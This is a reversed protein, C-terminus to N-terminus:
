DSIQNTNRWLKTSIHSYLAAKPDIQRKGFLKHWGVVLCLNGVVVRAMLRSQENWTSLTQIAYRYPDKMQTNPLGLLPAAIM